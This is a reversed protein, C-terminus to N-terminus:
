PRISSMMVGRRPTAAPSRSSAPATAVLAQARCAQHFSKYASGAAPCPRLGGGGLRPRRPLRARGEGRHRRVDHRHVPRGHRRMRDTQGRREAQEMVEVIGEDLPSNQFVFWPMVIDVSPDAILAAIGKEYDDSTASGTVDIPNQVVYYPPYAARLRAM